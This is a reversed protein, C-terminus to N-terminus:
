AHPPLVPAPKSHDKLLLWSALGLCLGASILFPGFFGWQDSLYGMIVAGTAPGARFIMGYVSLVRSLKDEPTAAQILTQAGVGAVALAAGLLALLAILVVFNPGAVISVLLSAAVMVSMIVTTLLKSHDTRQGLWLGGVIAGLGLASTAAALGAAGQSMVEAAFGPLLEIFGRLLTASATSLLLVSAIATQAGAWALADMFESALSGKTGADAPKPAFNPRIHFSAWLLIISCVATAAFVAAIHLYLILVGAIAPGIFRALNFTVANIAIAAGLSSGPVLARVLAMRSPQKIAMAFGDIAVLVMLWAINIAGLGASIFLGIASLVSITQTVRIIALRNYRDGLAGALPGVFLTPLLDAAAVLGVWFVSQTLEYALWGVGVRKAWM